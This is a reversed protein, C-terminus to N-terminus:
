ISFKLGNGLLGMHCSEETQTSVKHCELTELYLIISMNIYLLGTVPFANRENYLICHFETLDLATNLKITHVLILLLFDYKKPIVHPYTFSALIKM